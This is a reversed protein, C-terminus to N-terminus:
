RVNEEGVRRERKGKGADGFMGMSSIEEREVLLDGALAGDLAAGLAAADVLHFVYAWGFVWM